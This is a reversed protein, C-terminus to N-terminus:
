IMSSHWSKFLDFIKLYAGFLNSVTNNWREQIRLQQSDRCQDFFDGNTPRRAGNGGASIPIGERQCIERFERRTLPEPLDELKMVHVSVAEVTQGRKKRRQSMIGDRATQHMRNPSGSHQASSFGTYM